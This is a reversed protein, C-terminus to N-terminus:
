AEITKPKKWKVWTLVILRTLMLACFYSTGVGIFMTVAFGKIPGTGFSFLILAAILATLNSDTITTRARQYGTDIASLVSRGDRLEEKIREFILVNGDVALGITLVIGAIGPLTLTAQLMSMVAMILVMNVLIGISAFIGFLGYSVCAFITVFLLAMLCAMKGAEVSDAGLSPGVSREEVVKMPAPLAGARLLLALDNATKVSFGGSIVGSGGCIESRIVPASIVLDDLVIAFPKGVNERTVECFRRAGVNDLRFSIVPGEDQFTPQANELMDGTILPRRDVSLKQTPNEAYPFVKVTGAGGDSPDKVLHFNLKATTGIINKLSTADAGPAQILIRDDGQRQILPETTGLEDVRRRVIEISQSITQDFITKIGAENIIASITVGDADTSVDANPESARLVKRAAEGDAKDRLVLRVGNGNTGIRSYGIKDERLTKRIDQVMSDAREKLVVDVDVEYLLHAGGRLDLGLNVTKHPLWTPIANRLDGMVNPMAYAFGLAVTLLILVIKWRAIQIM